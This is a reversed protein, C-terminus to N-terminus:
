ARQTAVLDALPVFGPDRREEVGEIELRTIEPAAEYITEEILKKAAAGAGPRAGDYRVRLTESNLELLTIGAGRSDFHRQLKDMARRVRAEVGHPHLDHLVLVGSVLDDAAMAETIVPGNGAAAVIELIRRLADEHLGMVAQVLEVAARRAHPDPLTEVAAVLEDIHAVSEQATM